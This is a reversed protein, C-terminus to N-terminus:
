LRKNILVVKNGRSTLRTINTIGLSELDLWQIWKEKHNDYMYLSSEFGYVLHNNFVMFDEVNHQLKSEIEIQGNRVYYKKISYTDDKSLYLLNGDDSQVFCRGINMGISKHTNRRLDAIELSNSGEKKIGYLAMKYNPLHRYYGINDNMDFLLKGSDELSLPYEWIVQQGDKLVKVVSFSNNQHLRPSYESLSTKTLRKLRGSVLNLLLIDTQDSENLNSVLLLNNDDKFTPQNNYGNKNFANLFSIKSLDNEINFELLYVDTEPLQSYGINSNLFFVLVILLRFM